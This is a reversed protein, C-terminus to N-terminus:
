LRKPPFFQTTLPLPPSFFHRLTKYGRASLVAFGMLGHDATELSPCPPRSSCSATTPGKSLRFMRAGWLGKPVDVGKVVNQSLLSVAYWVHKGTRCKECRARRPVASCTPAAAQKSRVGSCCRMLIRCSWKSTQSYRFTCPRRMGKLLTNQYCDSSLLPLSVLVDFCTKQLLGVYSAEFNM